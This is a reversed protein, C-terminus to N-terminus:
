LSPTTINQLCLALMGAALVLAGILAWFTVKEEPIHWYHRKMVLGNIVQWLILIGFMFSGMVEICGRLYAFWLILALGVALAICAQNYPFKSDAPPRKM